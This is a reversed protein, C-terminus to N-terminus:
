SRFASNKMSRKWFWKYKANKILVYRAMECISDDNHAISLLGYGYRWLLKRYHKDALPDRNKVSSLRLAALIILAKKGNIEIGPSWSAGNSKMNLAFKDFGAEELREKYIESLIGTKSDMPGDFEKLSYDNKIISAILQEYKDQIVEDKVSNIGLTLGCLMDGSVRKTNYKVSGQENIVGCALYDGLIFKGLGDIVNKDAKGRKASLFTHIGYRLCQTDITPLIPSGKAFLGLLIKIPLTLWHLFFRTIKWITSPKTNLLWHKQYFKSLNRFLSM